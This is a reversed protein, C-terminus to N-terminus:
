TLDAVLDSIEAPVVETRGFPKDDRDIIVRGPPVPEDIFRRIQIFLEPQNRSGWSLQNCLDLKACFISDIQERDQHVLLTM